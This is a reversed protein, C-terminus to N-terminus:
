RPCPNREQDNGQHHRVAACPHHYLRLEAFITDVSTIHKVKRSLEGPRTSPFIRTTDTYRWEWIPPQTPLRAGRHRGPRYCGLKKGKIECGAFAKKAKETDKAINDDEKNAEGVRYRGGRGPIGHAHRRDGAGKRRQCQGRRILYLSARRRAPTWRFITSVQERM